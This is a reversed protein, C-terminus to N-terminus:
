PTVTASPASALGIGRSNTATVTCTYTAGPSADSVVIPAATAGSNTARQTVGGSSSTCTATQQTIPAGNDAGLTFSVSIESPGVVAASVHTPAAPSGVVVRQSPTSAPGTGRANTAAVTCTYAIGLTLGNVTIPTATAGVYTATKSIGPAPPTCKASYSTIVGGNDAGAKYTIRLSGTNSTTRLAIVTVETPAAPTGVVVSPSANSAAGAGVANTATVTCTYAEGTTLHAVTVPSVAASGKKTAGTGTPACTATYATIPSGGDNFETFSVVVSGTTAGAKAAAVTVNSAAGPLVPTVHQASPQSAPSAGYVNIAKVTCTYPEGPSLKTVLVPSASGKGTRTAGSPSTCKATYGTIPSGGDDAPPTFAVSGTTGSISFTGITPADPAPDEPVFSESPSSPPGAGRDNSATVICTYTSGNTLGSVDIPSATGSASGTAGGDSSSCTATYGTIASGGNDPASFAVFAGANHATATGIAPAAPPTPITIRGISSNHYNAFWMAGDPGAVIGYPQQITSHFYTNLTGGTTLRAILSDSSDSFWLAGDPGTTIATGAVGTAFKTITGATTIRGISHNGYNTFWLAGDPGSSIGDPNSVTSSTYNSVVGAPTIRGISSNGNNTFWLAGDPGVTIDFPNVITPDTYATVTGDTTIRGISGKSSDSMSNNTFWLAGDPGATINIPDVITPDTYITVVGDSTIRGISDSEGAVQNGNNTFWLAGDPGTTIGSPLRIGNDRFSTVTGDTTIRGITDNGDNTYWLAGDPGVTMGVPLSTGPTRYLTFTGATTIRGVADYSAFWLAGDPGVTIGRPNTIRYNDHTTIVGATTIEDVGGMTIDTFWLAGDPGAVINDPGQVYADSYNTVVGATTIRGLTGNGGNINTFWLAGDPGAAIGVPGVISADTYTSVTGGTTIRGISNSNTFWLAGDPGAAIGRPDSIGTATFNTVTGSTTIRGISNNRSNTFWLAGDPGTTISGPQETTYNSIGVGTFNSVTGSTTIRGISSNATNIFWLSGDPGATIACPSSIGTGTYATMDGTVALRGISNARFNTFWLAGDAGAAVGCADSIDNVGPYNTVSPAAAAVVAGLGAGVVAGSLGMLVAVLTAWWRRQLM